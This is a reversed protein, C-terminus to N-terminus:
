WEAFGEMGDDDSGDDGDNGGDNDDGDDSAGIEDDSAAEAEDEDSREDESDQRGSRVAPNPAPVDNELGAGDELDQEDAGPGSSHMESPPHALGLHSVGRGCFQMYMDRDVFHNVYYFNWGDKDTVVEGEATEEFVDGEHVAPDDHRAHLWSQLNTPFNQTQGINYSCEAIALLADEHEPVDHDYPASRHKRKLSTTISKPHAPITRLQQALRERCELQTIQKTAGNKNTQGYFKKVHRHELEGHQTSYNDTTSKCRIMPSYDGMVHYKYTNLVNFKKLKATAKSGSKGSEASATPVLTHAPPVSAALMPMPVSPGPVPMTIDANTSNLSQDVTDNASAPQMALVAVTTQKRRQRAAIERPLERTAYHSCIDHDFKWFETHMHLKALAHWEAFYYLLDMVMDDEGDPFLGEFVPLACQLLDELNRAALKKMAAADTSFRCITGSSSTLIARYRYNLEQVCNEGLAILIRILHAFLGKWSGLEVEHLLDSTLIDYFTLGYPALLESFANIIPVLSKSKLLDDVAKSSVGKGLEFVAKWATKIASRRAEDEIRPNALRCQIDHKTGMESFQKKPTLCWTCPCIGMNRIAALLVKEPYDASYSFLRPFLCRMIGDACKLVVDNKYAERFENDMLLTWVAHMLERKCHTIMELSANKGTQTKFFDQFSDPLSPIYAVHHCAQSSPKSREYKSQYGFM